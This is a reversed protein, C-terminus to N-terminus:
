ANEEKKRLQDLVDLVHRLYNVETIRRQGSIPSAEGDIIRVELVVDVAEGCARKLHMTLPGNTHVSLVIEEGPDISYRCWRLFTYGQIKPEWLQQTEPHQLFMEAMREEQEHLYDWTTTPTDFDM